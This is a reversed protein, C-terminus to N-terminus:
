PKSLSPKVSAATDASVTREVKEGEVEPDTLDPDSRSFVGQDFNEDQERACRRGPACKKHPRSSDAVVSPAQRAIERRNVSMPSHDGATTVVRGGPDRPAGVVSRGQRFLEM